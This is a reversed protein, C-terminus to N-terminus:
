GAGGLERGGGPCALAGVACPAGSAWPRGAGVLSVPGSIGLARRM